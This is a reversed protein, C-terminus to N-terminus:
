TEPVPAGIRRRHDKGKRVVKITSSTCSLMANDDDVQGYEVEGVVRSKSEFEHKRGRTYWVNAGM